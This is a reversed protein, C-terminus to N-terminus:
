STSGPASPTEARILEWARTLAIVFSAFIVYSLGNVIRPTHPRAILVIGGTFQALYTLAALALWRYQMTDLVRAYLRWTSYLCLVALIAMAFGINASPIIALLSLSFANVLGTFSTGALTKVRAPAHEGFVIDSRLSIAVFLLGIMAGAAGASTIMYEIYSSPVM